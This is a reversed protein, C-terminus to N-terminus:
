SVYGLAGRGPFPEWLWLWPLSLLTWLDPLTVLGRAMEIYLPMAATGAGLLEAGGRTRVSNVITRPIKPWQM